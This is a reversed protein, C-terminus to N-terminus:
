QQSLKLLKEEIFPAKDVNNEILINDKIIAYRPFGEMGFADIIKQNWNGEAFLNVGKLKHKKILSLWHDKESSLCINIFQINKESLSEITQNHQPFNKICPGCWTAWINVYTLGQSLEDLSILSDKQDVLIMTPLLEGSNVKNMGSKTTQDTGALEIFSNYNNIEFEKALSDIQTPDDYFRIVGSFMFRHYIDKVSKKLEKKSSKLIHSHMIQSKVLGGHYFFSDVPLDKLFFQNLFWVYKSSLLASEDNVLVTDLFSFYDQPVESKFFGLIENIQPLGTKIELNSYKIEAKEYDLFWTPLSSNKAEKHLFELEKNTLSDVFHTISGYNSVNNLKHNYLRGYDVYGLFEKKRLYYKNISNISEDKDLSEIEKTKVDYGISSTGNPKLVIAFEENGIWLSAQAPRDLLIALSIEGDKQIFASHTTQNRNLYVNAHTTLGVELTDSTMGSIELNLTSKQPFSEYLSSYDPKEKSTCSTLFIWFILAFYILKM